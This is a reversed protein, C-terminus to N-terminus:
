RMHAGRMWAWCTAISLFSARALPRYYPAVEDPSLLVAALGVNSGVVIAEDDWV